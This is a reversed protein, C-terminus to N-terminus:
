AHIVLHIVVGLVVVVVQHMVVGLVVVVVHHVVVDLMVGVRIVHLHHHRVVLVVVVVHWRMFFLAMLVTGHAELVVGLAGHELEGGQLFSM